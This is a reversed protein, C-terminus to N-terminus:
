GGCCRKYKRGSGCPCPNNRGIKPASHRVPAPIFSIPGDPPEDDEAEADNEGKGSEWRSRARAFEPSFCYWWELEKVVDTILHHHPDSRLQALAPALGLTRAAVVDDISISMRDVLGEKYALLIDNYLEGPYLDAAANVLGAWVYSPERRLGGQFLSRFYDIADHRPHEGVNVLTVLAVLGAARSFEEAEENEILSRIGGVDGGSVSALCRGINETRSAGLLNNVLYDPLSAIKLLPQYARTERFQALLLMAFEHAMYDPKDAVVQPEAAAAELIRLLEPTVEEARKIAQKVALRPFPQQLFELEAFIQETTM